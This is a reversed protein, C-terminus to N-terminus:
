RYDAMIMNYLAQGAQVPSDPRLFEKICSPTLFFALGGVEKLFNAMEM